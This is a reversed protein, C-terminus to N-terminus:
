PLWWESSYENWQIAYIHATFTLGTLNMFSDQTYPSGNLLPDDAQPLDLYMWVKIYECYHMQVPLDIVDGMPDYSFPEPTIAVWKAKFTVFGNEYLWLLIPDTTSIDADVKVPVSGNCHIIMDACLADSPFADTFTIQVTDDAAAGVPEAKASAVLVNNTPIYGSHWVETGGADKLWFYVVTADTDTDKYIDTGSFYDANIDVNGTNVTGNIAISDTWAAYGVGLAGLAMVIALALLGIKKM